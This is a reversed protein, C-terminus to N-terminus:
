NNVSKLKYDFFMQNTIDALWTPLSIDIDWSDVNEIINIFFIINTLIHVHVVEVVASREIPVVLLKITLVLDKEVAMNGEVVIRVVAYGTIVASGTIVSDFLTINNLYLKCYM